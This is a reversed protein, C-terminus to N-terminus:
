KADGQPAKDGGWKKHCKGEKKCQEKHAQHMAEMKSYQEPTLNEKYIAMRENRLATRMQKVEARLAEVKQPDGNAHKLQRLEQMKSRLTQMDAQHAQKFAEHSAKIKAEQEPTIGLETRMKEQYEKMKAKYEEKNWHGKGGHGEGDHGGGVEHLAPTTDDAQPGDQAWSPMLSTTCALVLLGTLLPKAFPNVTNFRMM